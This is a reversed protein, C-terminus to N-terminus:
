ADRRDEALMFPYCNGTHGEPRKCTGRWTERSKPHATTHNGCKRTEDSRAEPIRESATM